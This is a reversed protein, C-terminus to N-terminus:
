RTFLAAKGFSVNALHTLQDTAFSTDLFRRQQPVACRASSFPPSTLAVAGAQDLATWEYVNRTM